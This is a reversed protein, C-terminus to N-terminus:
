IHTLFPSTKTTEDSMMGLKSKGHKRRVIEWRALPFISLDASNLNNLFVFFSRSMMMM